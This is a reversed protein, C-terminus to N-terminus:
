RLVLKLIFPGFYTGEFRDAVSSGHARGFTVSLCGILEQFRCGIISAAHM